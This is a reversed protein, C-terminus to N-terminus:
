EPSGGKRHNKKAQKEAKAAKKRAAENGEEQKEVFAALELPSLCVNEATASTALPHYNRDYITGRSAAVTSERTQQGAAEAQLEDHRRIQLDYLKWFLMLFTVVGRLRMGAVTRSRVVQNARRAAESKRPSKGAM